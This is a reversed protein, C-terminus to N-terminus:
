KKLFKLRALRAIDEASTPLKNAAADSLLREDSVQGSARRGTGTNVANASARKEAKEAITAKLINSQLAESVSIKNYDAWRVVEDLDEQTEINARNLALLDFHSMETNSQKAKPAAKPKSKAKIIAAEAKKARAEWDIVEEEEEEEESEEVVETTEEEQEEIVEEEKTEEDYNDM